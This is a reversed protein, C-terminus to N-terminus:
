ARPDVQVIAGTGSISSSFTANQGADGTLELSTIYATGYEADDNALGTSLKWNIKTKARLLSKLAAHSQRNADVSEDIYIGDVSIEYSYADPTKVINGPDCKTQVETVNVNESLSNATICAVPEYDSAAENYISLLVNDGKIFTENAM